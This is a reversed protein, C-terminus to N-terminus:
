ASARPSPRPLSACGSLAANVPRVVEGPIKSTNARRPLSSLRARISACTARVRMRGSAGSANYLGAGFGFGAETIVYDVLSMGMKTAIITNTGQAINAFPGGHIIVPNNELTQVLNPQIASKLLVTMAGHAKIDRATVATKDRRYGIIINGISEELDELSAIQLEFEEGEGIEIRAFAREAAAKPEVVDAGEEFGALGGSHRFRAGPHGADDRRSDLM